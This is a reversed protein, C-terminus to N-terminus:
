WDLEIVRVAQLPEAVEAALCPAEDAAARICTAIQRVTPDGCKIATVKRKRLEGLFFATRQDAARVEQQLGYIKTNNQVGGIRAYKKEDAIARLADTRDNKTLCVLASLALRVTPVSGMLREIRDIEVRKDNAKREEEAAQVAARAAYNRREGEVCEALKRASTDRRAIDATRAARVNKLEAVAEDLWRKYQARGKTAGDLDRRAREVHAVAAADSPPRAARNAASTAISREDHCVYGEDFPPENDARAISATLLMIGIFAWRKMGRRYGPVGTYM